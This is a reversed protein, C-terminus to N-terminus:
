VSPVIKMKQIGNGIDWLQGDVTDTTRRKKNSKKNYKMQIVISKIRITMEGLDEQIPSEEEM